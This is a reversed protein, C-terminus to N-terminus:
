LFRIGWRIIVLHTEGADEREDGADRSGCGAESAAVFRLLAQALGIDVVEDISVLADQGLPLGGLGVVNRVITEEVVRVADVRNGAELSAEGDKGVLRGKNAVLGLGYTNQQCSCDPYDKGLM